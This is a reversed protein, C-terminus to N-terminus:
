TWYATPSEWEPYNTNLWEKFEARMEDIKDRRKRAEEPNDWDPAPLQPGRKDFECCEDHIYVQRLGDDEYTCDVYFRPSLSMHASRDYFAAKYFIAGRKRGKEDVLDTWMSHDTPVKKWGAPFQVNYFLDDAPDKIVFGLAELHQRCNKMDRPLTELISQEIQGNKEQREIGGPTSAAILNELNGSLGALLAAPTM